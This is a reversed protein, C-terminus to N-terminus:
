SISPSNRRRWHRARAGGDHGPMTGAVWAAFSGRIRLFVSLSTRRKTKCHPPEVAHIAPVVGPWSSDTSEGGVCAEDWFAEVSPEGARDVAQSM